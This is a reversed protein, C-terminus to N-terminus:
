QYTLVVNGGSIQIRSITLASAARLRYFRQPGSVPITVTKATTDVTASNEAAFAGPTLASASELVIGAAAGVSTYAKIASATNPDNILTRESTTRNVSFWEVHAGGGREFWILRFPYLGAQEVVFDFTGDFTGSTKVGLVLPNADTFGAGSSLEFGDDSTVGFTYVGAALDLYTQIEMAMDNPDPQATPDIGPFNLDNAFSGDTGSNTDKQTFNIVAVVANTVFAAYNPPPNTGLQLKARTLSNETAVSAQVLRANFGRTTGSGAVANSAHLGAYSFVWENTHGLGASDAFVFRNTHLSSNAPATLPYSVTVGAFPVPNNPVLVESTLTLNANPIAVGDVTLAITNTNVDTERNLIAVKVTAPITRVFDGPRPALEVVTAGLTGAAPASAAYNDFTSDAISAPNTWLAQDERNFNFIGAKGNPHQSDTAVVAAIPNNTDPLAYVYGVLIDANGTMVWRYRNRTPDLPVSVEAITTPSEGTIENIQLDGDASNYNMVYGDTAGLGISTARVVLGFAQDVVQDWNIVDVAAVFRTYDPSQFSFARAPGVVDVPPADSKIRYAKGGTGDDPFSFTAAKGAATLDLKTWGTDNGDNFDDTQAYTGPAAFTIALILSFGCVRGYWSRPNSSTM